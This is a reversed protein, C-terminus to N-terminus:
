DDKAFGSALYAKDRAIDLHETPVANSPRWIIDRLVAVDLKPVRNEDVLGNREQLTDTLQTYCYGALEPSDHIADFLQRVLDLYEAESTVTAYGFWKQGTEPRFSIGGFETLMVPQGRLDDPNLLLRRRQPGHGIHIRNVDHTTHYRKVLHEGSLAYDHVGIIDSTTHEWGDNSIVPRTPDLAKTLYYLSTAFAQQDKRLAVDPVGWSENLPVWTVLCPHSRDREVVEMWERTFREVAQNSYQYANAMEGWVLLGVMDCWYLFRPDEVKQHIRVANFGLSKILMAERRYADPDPAALHSKPWYGQQLVSRMFFPKDNLLFRRHEVGCSRMGFYSEVTDLVTGAADLLDCRVDILNPRETSWVLSARDQGREFAGVHLAVTSHAEALDTTQRALVVGGRRLEVRCGLADRPRHGLVLEIRVTSHALDPTFQLNRIFDAPVPELWVPQWIGSTRHYWIAHPSERWDQKGRPQTLDLPQDEARVVIVQQGDPRLNLTIDASFPTNGGMHTAVVAGNVWVSASYDVAGFHLLLRGGGQPPAVTVERRYWLVPHYGTEGIGSLESEPPFPVIITRRFAEGGNFWREGLGRDEDDHAFQWPGCLDIWATRRLRPRPYSPSVSGSPFDTVTL